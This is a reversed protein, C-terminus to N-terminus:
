LEVEHFITSNLGLKRAQRMLLIQSLLWWLRPTFKLHPSIFGPIGQPLTLPILSTVQQPDAM